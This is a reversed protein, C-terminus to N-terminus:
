RTIQKELSKIKEHMEKPTVKGITKVTSEATSILPTLGMRDRLEAVEGILREWEGLWATKLQERETYEHDKLIDINGSNTNTASRM